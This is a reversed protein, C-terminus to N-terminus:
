TNKIIGADIPANLKCLLRWDRNPIRHPGEMCIERLRCVAINRPHLGAFPETGAATPIAVTKIETNNINERLSHIHMSFNSGHTFHSNIKGNLTMVAYTTVTDIKENILLQIVNQSSKKIINQASVQNRNREGDCPSSLIYPQPDHLTGM